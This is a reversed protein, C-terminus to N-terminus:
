VRRTITRMPTRSASQKAAAEHRGSTWLDLDGDGDLDTLALGELGREAAAEVLDEPDSAGSLFSFASRCRLEM